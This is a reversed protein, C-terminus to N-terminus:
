AALYRRLAEDRESCSTTHQQLLVMYRLRDPRRM